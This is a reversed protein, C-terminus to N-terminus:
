QHSEGDIILLPEHITDSGLNQLRAIVRETIQQGRPLLCGGSTTRADDVLTMGAQLERVRVERVVLGASVGLIESLLELLQPDHTGRGRLRALAIAASDSGLELGTYEVAIDLIEVEQALPESAVVHGDKNDRRAQYGDLLQLVDELLPVNSLLRRTVQPVGAVMEVEAETLIRGAHMKATVQPPLAVAGLHQLTAAAQLHWWDRLGAAQALRGALEGTRAAQESGDPSVLSQVEALIAVCGRLTEQLAVRGGTQLRHQGMAAACARMLEEADCPKILFRFLQADNVAKVAAPVDADGTLLIRVTDPATLRAMRLLESGRLSPMRMDSLIVSFDGPRRKLIELAELPDSSSVVSFSRGLVDALGALVAPDDDVCLIRPRSGARMSSSASALEKATVSLPM